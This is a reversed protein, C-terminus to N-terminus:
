DEEISKKLKRVIKSLGSNIKLFLDYAPEQGALIPVEWAKHMNGMIFQVRGAESCRILLDEKEVDTLNLNDYAYTLHEVITVQSPIWEFLQRLKESRRYSFMMSNVVDLQEDESLPLNKCIKEVNKESPVEFSMAEKLEKYFGAVTRDEKRWSIKYKVEKFLNWVSELVMAYAVQVKKGDRSYGYMEPSTILQRKVEEIEKRLFLEPKDLWNKPVVLLNVHNKYEKNQTYVLSCDYFENIIPVIKELADISKQGDYNRYEVAVIGHRIPIANYVNEKYKNNLVKVKKSILLDIVNEWTPIKPDIQKKNIGIEEVCLRGDWASELIENINSQKSIPHEHYQNYGFPKECVDKHFLEEILNTLYNTDFAARGYDDYVGDIPPTRLSWHDYYYCGSTLRGEDYPNRSLFLLKVKDGPLISIGSLACNFNFSGM